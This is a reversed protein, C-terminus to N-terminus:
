QNLNLIKKTKNKVKKIIMADSIQPHWKPIKVKEHFFRQPSNFPKSLAVFSYISAINANLNM